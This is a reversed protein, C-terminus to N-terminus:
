WPYDEGAKPRPPRRTPVRRARFGESGSERYFRWGDPLWAWSDFRADQLNADDLTTSRFAVGLLDASVLRAGSFDTGRVSANRLDAQTLDAGSFHAGDLRADALVAYTLNSRALIAREMNASKFVTEVLRADSLDAERLEAGTLDAQYLDVGALDMRNLLALCLNAGSLDIRRLPDQQTPGRGIVALAAVVDPLPPQWRPRRSPRLSPAEPAPASYPLPRDDPWPYHSHERVFVALRSMVLHCTAHDGSTMLTTVLHDLAFIGSVREEESSSSLQTFARDLRGAAGDDSARAALQGLMAELRQGQQHTVDHNLQDALPALPGGRSGRTTIERLLHGTLKQAVVVAGPVGMVQASSQGTGTLSVDDLVAVQAAIGAQLAELLTAQGALGAEPVPERFVHSLVPALEEVGQGGERHLEFATLQVAVTAASRLAREQETGLVWTTLKKRGADALLGTLWAALDDAVFVM